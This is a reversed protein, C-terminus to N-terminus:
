AVIIAHIQLKLLFVVRQGLSAALNGSEMPCTGLVFASLEHEGLSQVIECNSPSGCLGDQRRRM